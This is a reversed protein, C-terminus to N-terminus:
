HEQVSTNSKKFLIIAIVLILIAGTLILTKMADDHYVLIARIIATVAVYLYDEFHINANNSFFDKIIVLFELCLFASLINESVDTFETQAGSQFLPVILEYLSLAFYGAIVLGFVLMFLTILWDFVKSISKFGKSNM